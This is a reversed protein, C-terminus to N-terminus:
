GALHRTGAGIAPLGAPASVVRALARGSPSGFGAGPRGNEAIERPPNLGSSAYLQDACSASTVGADTRLPRRHTYASSIPGSITAVPATM